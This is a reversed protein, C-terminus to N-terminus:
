RRAASSYYAEAGRGRPPESAGVRRRRDRRRREALEVRLRARRERGAGARLAARAAAPDVLGVPRRAGDGLAERLAAAGEAAEQRGQRRRAAHARLAVQAAHDARAAPRRSSSCFSRNRRTRTGINTIDGPHTNRLRIEVERAADAAETELVVRRTRVSRRVLAPCAASLRAASLRAAPRRAAAEPGPRARAAAAPPHGRRCSVARGPGAAAAAAALAAAAAAAAAAAPRRPPRLHSSRIGGIAAAEGRIRIERPTGM